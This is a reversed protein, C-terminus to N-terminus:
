LQIKLMCRPLLYHHVYMPVVRTGFTTQIDGQKKVNKRRKKSHKLNYSSWMPKHKLISDTSGESEDMWNQRFFYKSSLSPDAMELLGAALVDASREMEQQFTTALGYLLKFFFLLVFQSKADLNCIASM